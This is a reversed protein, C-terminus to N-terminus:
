KILSFLIVIIQIILASGITRTWFRASKQMNNLKEEMPTFKDDIVILRKDITNFMVHLNEIKGEMEKQRGNVGNDGNVGILVTKLQLVQSMCDSVMQILEKREERDQKTMAMRHEGKNQNNMPMWRKRGSNQTHM